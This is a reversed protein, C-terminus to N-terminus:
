QFKPSSIVITVEFHAIFFANFSVQNKFEEGIIKKGSVTVINRIQCTM